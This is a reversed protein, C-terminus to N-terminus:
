LFVNGANFQNEAFISLIAPARYRTTARNSMVRKLKVDNEVQALFSCALTPAAEDDGIQAFLTIISLSLTLTGDGGGAGIELEASGEEGGKEQDDHMWRDLYNFKM